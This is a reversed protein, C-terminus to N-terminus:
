ECLTQNAREAVGNQEPTHPVTLQRVIGEQNFYEKFKNSCYEGGNDSRIIKIQKGTQREVMNKYNKLKEFVEDKSRLFLLSQIGQRIM